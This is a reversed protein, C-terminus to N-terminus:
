EGLKKWDKQAKKLKKKAEKLNSEAEHLACYEPFIEPHTEKLERIYNKSYEIQKLFSNNM